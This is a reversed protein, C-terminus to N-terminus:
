LDLMEIRALIVRLLKADERHSDVVEQVDLADDAGPEYQPVYTEAFNIRDLVADRLLEVELNDELELQRSMMMGEM